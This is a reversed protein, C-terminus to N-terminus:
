VVHHVHQRQDARDQLELLAHDETISGRYHLTNVTLVRLCSLFPRQDLNRKDALNELAVVDLQVVDGTLVIRRIDKSFDVVVLHLDTVEVDRLSRKDTSILKNDILLVRLLFFLLLLRKFLLKVRRYNLKATILM